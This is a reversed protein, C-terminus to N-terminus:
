HSVGKARVVKLATMALIKMDFMLSQRQLYEVDYAVKLPIELEDRGNVQAWGTLGPVLRSVGAQTRAEILDYQNFLAPRPGVLSMKGRLICWLQPLEDLSSKRLFGGIPTLHSAPNTMLHTAVVPADTRMTRFKPMLFIQNDKGVRQSWFLAPGKSTLRVAMAILLMPLAFVLAAAASIALDIQRKLPM